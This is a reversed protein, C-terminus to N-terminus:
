APSDALNLYRYRVAIAVAQSRNRVGLKNAANRAHTYVTAKGIGLEDAVQAARFGRAFLDLIERERETLRILRELNGDDPVDPQGDPQVWGESEHVAIITDVLEDMADAKTVFASAGCARAREILGSDDHASLIIVKTDHHAKILSLATGFGDIGPLEIDLIVVDADISELREICGEGSPVEGVVDFRGDSELRGSIAMRILEHDDCVLVSVSAVSGNADRGRKPVEEVKTLSIRRVPVPM